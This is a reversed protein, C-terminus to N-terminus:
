PSRELGVLQVQCRDALAQIEKQIEKPPHPFTRHERSDAEVAYPMWFVQEGKAMTCFAAEIEVMSLPQDQVETVTKNRNTGPLISFRWRGAQDQWSYLEMGKFAGQRARCSTLFLIAGISAILFRSTPKMGM